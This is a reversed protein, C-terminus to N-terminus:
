KEQNESETEKRERLPLLSSFEQMNPLEAISNLGFYELFQKSTGYVFPRGIVEKKGVIRILGKELLNKIVGDTNVGRISEIDLRTVPQKYAIIALTELAPSSLRESNKHKYYKKLYVAFDPNTIMQFGGAVESIQVGRGAEAYEKELEGLLERINQPDIGELVNTIEEILLPRGSVFLLSEIINKEKSM